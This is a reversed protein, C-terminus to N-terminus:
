GHTMFVPSAIARVRSGGADATGMEELTMHRAKRIAAENPMGCSLDRMNRCHRAIEDPGTSSYLRVHGNNRRVMKRPLVSAKEAGRYLEYAISIM